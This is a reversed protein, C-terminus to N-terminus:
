IGDSVMDLTAIWTLEIWALITSGELLILIWEEPKPSEEVASLPAVTDTM